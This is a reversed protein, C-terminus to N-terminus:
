KKLEQGEIDESAPRAAESETEGAEEAAKAAEAAERKALETEVVKLRRMKDVGAREFIDREKRLLMMEANIAAVGEQQAKVEPNEALRAKLAVRVQQLEKELESLRVQLKKTEEDESGIDAWSRSSTAATRLKARLAILRTRFTAAKAQLEKAEARLADREVILPDPASESSTTAFSDAAAVTSDVPDAAHVVAGGIALLAAILVFPRCAAHMM